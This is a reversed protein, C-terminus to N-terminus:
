DSDRPTKELRKQDHDRLTKLNEARTASKEARTRGFAIRNAGAQREKEDRAKRKRAQRLNVVNSAM